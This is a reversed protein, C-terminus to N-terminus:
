QIVNERLQIEVPLSEQHALDVVHLEEDCRGLEVLFDDSVEAAACEEADFFAGHGAYVFISLNIKFYLLAQKLTGESTYFFAQKSFASSSAFVANRAAPAPNQAFITSKLSKESFM